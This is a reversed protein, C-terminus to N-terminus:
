ANKIVAKFIYKNNYIYFSQNPMLKYKVGQNLRYGNVFTGNVSTDTIYFERNKSNFEVICHKRSVNQDMVVIHSAKENRGIIIPRVDSVIYTRGDYAQIFGKTNGKINRYNPTPKVPPPTYVGQEPTNYSVNTDKEYYETNVNYNKELDALFEDISRQRKFYDLDLAKTVAYEIGYFVNPYYRSLPAIKKGAIRELADPVKANTVLNYFTVALSYIDTWPGQVNTKMYLEPPSFGPKLVLKDDNKNPKNFYRANGFDIIKIEKNKLVIINKPSIDRHVIGKSHIFKLAKAVKVMVDYVTNINREPLDKPSLGEIYEMSYYATDNENFCDYVRVISSNEKLLLLFNAENIFSNLGDEFTANYHGAKVGVHNDESNRYAFNAPMYEKIAIIKKNNINQAKYIIGFGGIGVVRGIKYKKNLVTGPPLAISDEEIINEYGCKPCIDNEIEQFCNYCFKENSM